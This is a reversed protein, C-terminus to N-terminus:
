KGYWGFIPKVLAFAYHNGGVHGWRECTIRFANHTSVDSDELDKEWDDLEYDNPNTSFVWAEVFKEWPIEFKKVEVEVSYNTEPNWNPDGIDPWTLTVKPGEDHWFLVLGKKPVIAYRDPKGGPAITKLYEMAAKFQRQDGRIDFLMNDM